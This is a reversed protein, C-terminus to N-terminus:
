QIVCVLAIQLITWKISVHTRQTLRAIGTVVSSPCCCLTVYSVYNVNRHSKVNQSPLPSNYM